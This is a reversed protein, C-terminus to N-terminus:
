QNNGKKRWDLVDDIQQWTLKKAIIRKDKDLLYLTPFSQVDYLQSYGPVNADIRTKEEKKSYFVNTWGKLDNKSIFEKWDKPTGDIEKAVAYIQVSDKKWKAKYMSDLHPIVEKCHGCLPDWFAVITFKSPLEYLNKMKGTSDPLIINEAPNGMINAMLSYARDTITKKGQVTLWSYERNSFYKEYLHVFVADEWMYQQRLYRNIFKVLLFKTMEDSVSAFDLMRDIEKNVSDPQHYVLTKFYKDVRDEFLQAPTRSLRDDWFNLGDWYHDKFYRYAYLSDYKGGPHEAAKPVTPEQMLRLMVSLIHDPNNKVITNRYKSIEDDIANIKTTITASDTKTTSKALQQRLAQIAEGKTKMQQQYQLFLTNDPSGTFKKQDIDLTDAAISFHQQKDVLFEFFRDKTPYGIFYIGGGLAKSGKFVGESNANLLISDDIPMQKGSYHGLYVYQNKFPKFTIKIEYGAQASASFVSLVLLAAFSFRRM